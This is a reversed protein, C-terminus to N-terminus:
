GRPFRISYVIQEFLPVYKDAHQELTTGHINYLADPGTLILAFVQQLAAGTNDLTWRYREIHGPFGRHMFRAENIFEFHDYDQQRDHRTRTIIHQLHEPTPPNMPSVGFGMNARFGDEPPALLVLPFQNTEAADWDSPMQLSLGMEQDFYAKMRSHTM